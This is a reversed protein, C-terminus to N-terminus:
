LDGTLPLEVIKDGDNPKAVSQPDFITVTASPTGFDGTASILTLVVTEPVEDIRDDIPLISVTVSKQTPTLRVMQVNPLVYDAGDNNATGSLSYYVDIITNDNLDPASITFEAAIRPSAGNQQTLREYASPITATVTIATGGDDNQITGQVISQTMSIAADGADVSLLQVFFTEDAENYNDATVLVKVTQKMPGSPMFTVQALVSTYDFGPAATGADPGGSVNKVTWYSVTVPTVPASSLSIEFGFETPTTNSTGEFRSASPNSSAVISVTPKLSDDDTIKVTETSNAPDISVSASNTSTLTVLLTEDNEPLADQLIQFSFPFQGSSGAPINILGADPAFDYGASAPDTGSGTVSWYVTFQETPESVNIFLSVVGIGEPVPVTQNAQTLSVSALLTREELPESAVALEVPEHRRQRSRNLRSDTLRSFCRRQLGHLWSILRM